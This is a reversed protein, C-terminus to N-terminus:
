PVNSPFKFPFDWGHNKESSVWREITRLGVGTEIVSAERMKGKKLCDIIIIKEATTLNVRKKKASM